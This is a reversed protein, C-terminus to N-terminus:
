LGVQVCLLWPHSCFQIMVPAFHMPDTGNGLVSHSRLDVAVCGLYETWDEHFAKYLYATMPSGEGRWKEGKGEKEGTGHVYTYGKTEGRGRECVCMYVCLCVYRQCVTTLVLLM